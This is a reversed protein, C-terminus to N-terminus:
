RRCFPLVNLTRTDRGRDAMMTPATPQIPFGDNHFLGGRSSGQGSDVGDGDFVCKVGENDDQQSVTFCLGHIKPNTMAARIAARIDVISVRMLAQAAMPM